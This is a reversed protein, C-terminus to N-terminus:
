RLPAVLASRIEQATTPGEFKAVIIGQRNTVFIWPETHLRWQIVTPGYGHRPNANKDIEIHVFNVSGRYQKEVSQVVSIEPGCM